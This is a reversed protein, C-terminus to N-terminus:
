EKIASPIKEIVRTVAEAAVYLGMNDLIQAAEDLNSIATKVNDDKEAKKVFSPDLISAMSEAIDSKM